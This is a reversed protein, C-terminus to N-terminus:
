TITLIGALSEPLRARVAPLVEAAKDAGVPVVAGERETTLHIEVAQLAPRAALAAVLPAPDLDALVRPAVHYLNVALRVARVSPPAHALAALM